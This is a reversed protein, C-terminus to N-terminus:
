RAASASAAIGIERHIRDRMKRLAIGLRAVLEEGRCPHATRVEHMVHMGGLSAGRAFLQRHIKRQEAAGVGGPQQKQDRPSVPHLAKASRSALHREQVVRRENGLDLSRADRHEHQMCQVGIAERMQSADVLVVGVQIAVEDVKARRQRDVASVGLNM